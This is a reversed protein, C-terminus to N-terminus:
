VCPLPQVHSAEHGGHGPSQVYELQEEVPVPCEGGGVDHAPEFQRAGGHVFEDGCECGARVDHGRGSLGAPVPEADAGVLEAATVGLLEVERGLAPLDGARDGLGAVLRHM